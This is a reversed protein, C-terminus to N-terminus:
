QFFRLDHAIAAPDTVGTFLALLYGDPNILAVVANQSDCRVGQELVQKPIGMQRALRHREEFPGTLATFAPNYFDIFAKLEKPDQEQRALDLFVVRTKKQLKPEGALHNWALIYRFMLPRCQRHDMTGAVLFNWHGLLSNRDFPEGNKDVLQFDIVPQPDPFPFAQLNAMAPRAYRNGLYYSLAFVGVAMFAFLLKTLIRRM